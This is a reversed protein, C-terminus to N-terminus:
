DTQHTGEKHTDSVRQHVLEATMYGMSVNFTPGTVSTTQRGVSVTDCVRTMDEVPPASCPLTRIARVAESM